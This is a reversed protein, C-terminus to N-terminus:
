CNALKFNNNVQRAKWPRIVDGAAVKMEGDVQAKVANLDVAGTVHMLMMFKPLDQGDFGIFHAVTNWVFGNNRSVQIKNGWLQVCVDETMFQYGGPFEVNTIRNYGCAELFELIEPNYAKPRNNYINM